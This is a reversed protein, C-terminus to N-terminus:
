FYQTREIGNGREPFQGLPSLPTERENIEDQPIPWVFRFSGIALSCNTAPAKCDSGRTIGQCSMRIDFWRHGELFLEKRREVAIATLLASGSLTQTTYGLIRAARLANLDTM